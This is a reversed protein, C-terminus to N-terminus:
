AANSRREALRGFEALFADVDAESTEPGFSLRLYGAAIDPEVKMAELVHSAKAKGSSCASGASVAIGALDLQVLMAMSTAGPLSIAGIAPSRPVDKAIIQGGAAEVGDELRARLAAL